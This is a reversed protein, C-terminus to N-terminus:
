SFSVLVNTAEQRAGSHHLRTSSRSSHLSNKILYPPCLCAAPKVISTVRNSSNRSYIPCFNRSFYSVYLRGSFVIRTSALMEGVSAVRWVSSVISFNSGKPMPFGFGSQSRSFIVRLSTLERPFSHFCRERFHVSFGFRLSM